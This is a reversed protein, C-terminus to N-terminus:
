KKYFFSLLDLIPHNNLHYKNAYVGLAYFASLFETVTWKLVRTKLSPLGPLHHAGSTDRTLIYLWINANQSIM